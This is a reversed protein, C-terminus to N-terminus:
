HIQLDPDPISERVLPSGHHHILMWKDDHREFVNTAEVAGHSVGDRQRTELEETCTVFAIDGDIHTVEDSVRIAVDFAGDFIREWSQMVPGWGLIRTWGPHICSVYSERLWVAGMRDIDLSEFAEYFARNAALVDHRPDRPTGM